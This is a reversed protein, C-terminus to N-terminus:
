NLRQYLQCVLQYCWHNELGLLDGFLQYIQLKAQLYRLFPMDLQELFEIEAIGFASSLFDIGRKAAHSKLTFHWEYPLELKSLMEQQSGKSGTREKQYLAKPSSKHALNKANFTQFKIADVGAQAARDILEVALDFDGNHNVGAEAIIYVKEM